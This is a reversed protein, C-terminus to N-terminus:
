KTHSRGRWRIDAAGRAASWGTILLVLALELLLAVDGGTAALPTAALGGGSGSSASVSRACFAQGIIVDGRGTPGFLYQHAANVTISGQPNVMQENFVWKFTDLSGNVQLTGNITDNAPPNAPVQVTTAPDGVENTSTALKANTFTTSGSLGASSATCTSAVTGATFSGGFVEGVMCGNTVATACGEFSTSSTVSGGAPTGQTSVTVPGSNFLIAPGFVVNGTPASATVPTSSGAAPLTVKPAPGQSAFPGGFLSINVYSGYASGGVQTVTTAATTPTTATAQGPVTTTTTTTPTGSTNVGCTSQGIYLDGKATPGFLEEHAATVTISGDPNTKQENFVYTFTEKDNTSAYLFGNISDNPAP